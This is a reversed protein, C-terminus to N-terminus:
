FLVSYLFTYLYLLIYFYLVHKKNITCYGILIQDALTEPRIGVNQYALIRFYIWILM